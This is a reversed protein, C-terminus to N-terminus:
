RAGVLSNEASSSSSSYTFLLEVDLPSKSESGRKKKGVYILLESEPEQTLQDAADFIFELFLLAAHDALPNDVPLINYVSNAM